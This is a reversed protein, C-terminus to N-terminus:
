QQSNGGLLDVTEEDRVPEWANTEEDIKLFALREEDANKAGLQRLVERLAALPFDDMLDDDEMASRYVIIGAHPWCNVITEPRVADWRSQLKQLCWRLDVTQPENDDPCAINHRELDKRFHANVARISGADMPPMQAAISPPFFKLKLNEFYARVSHCSANNLM